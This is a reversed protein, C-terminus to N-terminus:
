CGPPLSRSIYSALGIAKRASCAPPLAVSPEPRMRPTVGALRWGRVGSSTPPGSSTSRRILKMRQFPSVEGLGRGPPWSPGCHRRSNTPSQLGVAVAARGCTALLASSSGEPRPQPVTLLGHGLSRKKGGEAEPLTNPPPTPPPFLSACFCDPAGKRLGRFVLS